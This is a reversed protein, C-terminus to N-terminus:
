QIRLGQLTVLSSIRGTNIEKTKHCFFHWQQTWIPKIPRTSSSQIAVRVVISGSSTIHRSKIMSPRWKARCSFCCTLQYCTKCLSHHQCDSPDIVVCLLLFPAVNGRHINRFVYITTCVHKAQISEITHTHTSNQLTWKYLAEIAEDTVRNDCLRQVTCTM